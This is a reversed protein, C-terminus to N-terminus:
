GNRTCFRRGGAADGTEQVPGVAVQWTVKKRCQGSAADGTEHVPGAAVRWM